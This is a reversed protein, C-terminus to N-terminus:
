PTPPPPLSLDGLWRVDSGASSLARALKEDATVLPVVLRQALAVYCADYAAIGRAVGIDLAESM